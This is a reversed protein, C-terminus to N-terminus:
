AASGYGGGVPMTAAGLQSVDPAAAVLPSSSRSSGGHKMIFQYILAFILIGIWAMVNITVLNPANWSIFVREM